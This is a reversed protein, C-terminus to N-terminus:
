AICSTKPTHRRCHGPWAAKRAFSAPRLVMQARMRLRVENTTRYLKDLATLEEATPLPIELPKRM